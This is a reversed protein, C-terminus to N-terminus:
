KFYEKMVDIFEHIILSKNNKYYQRWRKRESKSTVLEEIVQRIKLFTKIREKFEELSECINPIYKAHFKTNSIWEFMDEIHQDSGQMCTKVIHTCTNGKSELLRYELHRYLLIDVRPKSLVNEKCHLTMFRGWADKFDLSRKKVDDLELVNGDWKYFRTNPAVPIKKIFGDDLTTQKKPM